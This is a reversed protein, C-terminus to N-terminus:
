KADRLKRVLEKLDSIEFILEVAEDTYAEIKSIIEELENATQKQLKKKEVLETTKLLLNANLKDARVKYVRVLRNEKKFCKHSYETRERLQDLQRKYENAKMKEENALLEKETLKAILIAVGENIEDILEQWRKREKEIDLPHYCKSVMVANEKLADVIPKALKVDYKM